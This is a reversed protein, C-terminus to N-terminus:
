FHFVTVTFTGAYSGPTQNAAVNLTAGVTVTQSGPVSPVQQILGSPNSTFTSATMTAGGPGTLTTNGTPLSLFYTASGSSITVTFSAAGYASGLGVVGGTVTRVGAPSIVATGASGGVALSGFNLGATNQITIQAAGVRPIALLLAGLLFLPFRTSRIM